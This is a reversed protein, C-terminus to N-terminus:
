LSVSNRRDERKTAQKEEGARKGKRKMETRKEKSQLGKRKGRKRRQADRNESKKKNKREEDRTKLQSPVSTNTCWGTTQEKRVATEGYWHM